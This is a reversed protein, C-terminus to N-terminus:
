DEYRMLGYHELYNVMEIWTLGLITYYFQLKLGGTGFYQYIVSLFIVHFVFYVVM